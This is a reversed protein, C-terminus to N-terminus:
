RGKTYQNKNSRRKEMRAIEDIESGRINNCAILLLLIRHCPPLNDFLRGHIINLYIRLQRSTPRSSFCITISLNGDYRQLLFLAAVAVANDQLNRIRRFRNVKQAFLRTTAGPRRTHQTERALTPLSIINVTSSSLAKPKHCVIIFTFIQEINSM